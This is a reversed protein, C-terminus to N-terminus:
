HGVFTWIVTKEDIFNLPLCCSNPSVSSTAVLFCCPVLIVSVCPRHSHSIEWFTILFVDQYSLPTLFKYQLVVLFMERKKKQQQQSDKGQRGVLFVRREGTVAPYSVASARQFTSKVRSVWIEEARKIIGPIGRLSVVCGFSVDHNRQQALTTIQESFLVAVYRLM